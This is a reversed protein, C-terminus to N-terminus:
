VAPVLPLDNVRRLMLVSEVLFHALVIRLLLAQKTACARCFAMEKCASGERHTVTSRRGASLGREGPVANAARVARFAGAFEM